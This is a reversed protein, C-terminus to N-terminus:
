LIGKLRAIDELAAIARVGEDGLSLSFNNVYLNIHEDIVNDDLEQSHAKVFDRSVARDALGFEVSKRIMREVKEKCGHPFLDKRMAICGLPIPLGTEAEWWEGLDIIKICGYSSYIFRGEHIIVGADYKGSQIGPLITEFRTVEINKFGSNWLRLLLHATTYEGPVAIKADESPLDTTKGVLLPGCGYGLAAGADLLDYLNKLKFYAFFSLKTIQFKENFAFRNLTEVDDIFPSFTYDGTDVLGHLLAHFIITDNPCPSFALTLPTREKIPAKNKGM